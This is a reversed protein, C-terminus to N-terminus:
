AASMPPAISNNYRMLAAGADKADDIEITKVQKWGGMRADINALDTSMNYAIQKIGMMMTAPNVAMVDADTAIPIISRNAPIIMSATIDLNIIEMTAPYAAPQDGPQHIDGMALDTITLARETPVALNSMLVTDTAIDTLDMHVTPAAKAPMIAFAFLGMLGVTGIFIKRLLLM